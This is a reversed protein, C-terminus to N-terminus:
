GWLSGAFDDRADRWVLPSAWPLDRDVTDALLPRASRGPCTDYVAKAANNLELYQADSLRDAADDIAASLRAFAKSRGHCFALSTLRQSAPDLPGPCKPPKYRQAAHIDRRSSRTLSSEVALRNVARRMRRQSSELTTRMRGLSDGEQFFSDEESALRSARSYIGSILDREDASSSLLDHEESSGFSLHSQNDLASYISDSVDGRRQNRLRSEAADISYAM